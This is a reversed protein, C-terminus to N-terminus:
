TKEDGGPSSSHSPLPEPLQEFSTSFRRTDGAVQARVDEPVGKSSVEDLASCIQAANLGHEAVGIDSRSLDVRMYHTGPQLLRHLIM